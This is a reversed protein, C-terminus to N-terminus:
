EEKKDKRNIKLIWLFMLVNSLLACISIIIPIIYNNGDLGDVGNIGNTVTFTYSDGNTLTVTYTDENGKTDTLKINKIGIGDQGTLGDKGAVKVGTDTDGIWWNGNSGIYPIYNKSAEIAEKKAIEIAIELSEKLEEDAEEFECKANELSEIATQLKSIATNITTKDAKKNILSELHEQADKINQSLVEIDKTFDSYGIYKAYLICGDELPKTFDHPITYEEDDYWGMFIKDNIIPASPITNSEIIVNETSNGYNLCVEPLKKYVIEITVDYDPMTFKNNTVKILENLDDSKYVIVEDLAYGNIPMIFLTIEDGRVVVNNPRIVNLSVILSGFQSPISTISHSPSLEVYKDKLDLGLNVDNSNNGSASGYLGELVGVDLGQAKESTAILKSDSIDLINLVKIASQTYSYANINSENKIAMEGAFIANACGSTIGEPNVFDFDGSYKFVDADINSSGVSLKNSVYIACANSQGVQENYVELETNAKVNSNTINLNEVKIGYTSAWNSAYGSSSAIVESNKISLTKGTLAVNNQYWSSSAVSSDIYSDEINIESKGNIGIGYSQTYIKSKQINVNNAYISTSSYYGNDSYESIGAYVTSNIISVTDIAYIADLIAVSRVESGNVIEINKALLSTEVGEGNYTVGGSRTTVKSNNLTLTGATVISNIEPIISNGESDITEIGEIITNKIEISEPAIIAPDGSNMKIHDVDITIIGYEDLENVDNIGYEGYNHKIDKDVDDYYLNAGALIGMHGWANNVLTMNHIGRIHIDGSTGILIGNVGINLSTKETDSKYNYIGIHGNTSIIGQSPTEKDVSQYDFSVDGRIYMIISGESYIFIKPLEVGDKKAAEFDYKFNDLLIEFSDIYEAYGSIYKCDENNIVRNTDSLEIGAILYVQEFDEASVTIGNLWIGGILLILMVLVKCLTIKRCKM